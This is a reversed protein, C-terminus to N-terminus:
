NSNSPPKLNLYGRSLFPSKVFLGSNGRWIASKM